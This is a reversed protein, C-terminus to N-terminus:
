RRFRDEIQSLQQATLGARGDTLMLNEPRLLARTEEYFEDEVWLWDVPTYEAVDQVLSLLKWDAHLGRTGRFFEARPWGHGTGIVEFVEAKNFVSSLWVVRVGSRELAAIRSCVEPSYWTCESDPVPLYEISAKQSPNQFGYALIVGDIDLYLAPAGTM